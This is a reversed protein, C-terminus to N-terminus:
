IVGLALLVCEAIICIAGIIGLEPFVWFWPDLKM